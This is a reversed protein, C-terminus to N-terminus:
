NMISNSMTAVVLDDVYVLVFLINQNFRKVYFCKDSNLPNMGHTKLKSDLKKHWQRGSQKLGYISKKLLSVLDEEESKVFVEPQKMYVNEELDGNIYAMEIDLQYLILDLEVSLAVLM